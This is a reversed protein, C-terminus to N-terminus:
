GKLTELRERTQWHYFTSAKGSLKGTKKRKQPHDWYVIQSRKAYESMNSCLFFHLLHMLSSQTHFFERKKQFLCLFLQLIQPTISFPDELLWSVLSAAEASLPPETPPSNPTTWTLWIGWYLETWINLYWEKRILLKVDEYSVLCDM